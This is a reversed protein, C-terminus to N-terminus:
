RDDELKRLRFSRIIAVACLMVAGYLISNMLLGPWVICTPIPRSLSMWSDPRPNNAIGCKVETAPVLSGNRWRGEVQSTLTRCPWGYGDVLVFAGDVDNMAPSTLDLPPLSCWYPRMCYQDIARDPFDTAPFDDPKMRHDILAVSTHWVSSNIYLMRAHGSEYYGRGCGCASPPDYPGGLFASTIAILLAVIAGFMMTAVILAYHRRTLTVRDSQMANAFETLSRKQVSLLGKQYKM